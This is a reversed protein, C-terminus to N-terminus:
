IQRFFYINRNVLRALLAVAAGDKTHQFIKSYEQARNTLDITHAKVKPLLDAKIMALENACRENVEHVLGKLGKLSKTDQVIKGHNDSILEFTVDTEPVISTNFIGHIDDRLKFIEKNEEALKEYQRKNKSHIPHVQSIIYFTKDAIKTADSLRNRTNIADYKLQTAKSVQDTIVSSMNTWFNLLDNATKHSHDVASSRTVIQQIDRLLLQAENLALPLNVFHSQTGYHNLADITQRINDQLQRVKKIFEDANTKLEGSDALRKPIKGLLKHSRKM